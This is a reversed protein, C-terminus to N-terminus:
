KNICVRIRHGDPDLAVFTLGFVAKHLDQEITVSLEKWRKHLEHVEREDKALYDKERIALMAIACVHFLFMISNIAAPPYHGLHPRAACLCRWSVITEAINFHDIVVIALQKRTHKLLFM